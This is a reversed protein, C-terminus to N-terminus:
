VSDGALARDRDNADTSDDRLSPGSSQHGSKSPHDSRKRRISLFWWIGLLVLGVASILLGLGPVATSRVQFRTSALTQKGDPSLVLVELPSAGLSRAEVQIDISSIGSEVTILQGDEEVVIKDSLFKLLVQRTGPSNNEITLPIPASRAALTVSQNAPLSIVALEAGLQENLADIIEIRETATLGQSLATDIDDHYRAPPNSGDLYFTEYTGLRDQAQDVAETLESLDDAPRPLDPAESATLLPAARDLSLTAVAEHELADFALRLTAMDSESSSAANLVTPGSEGDALSLTALLRNTRVVADDEGTHGGSGGLLTSAPDAAVILVSQAGTDFRVSGGESISRLSRLDIATDVGLEAIAAAGDSTQSESLAVVSPDGVLGLENLAARRQAISRQYLGVQDVTVLSSPDLDPEAVVLVPRVGLASRVTATLAPDRQLEALQDESIILTADLAPHEALLEAAETLTAGDPDLLDFLLSTALPATEGDANNDGDSEPRALHILNTRLEALTETGTRLEVTVPYVGPERLRIREIDDFAEGQRVPMRIAITGQADVTYDDLSLTPMRNIPDTPAEELQQEDQVRGYITVVVDIPESAESDSEGSDSAEADTPAQEGDEDGSTDPQNEPQLSGLDIEMVFVGDPEVFASQSVLKLADEQSAASTDQRATAAAPSSTPAFVAITAALMIVVALVRCVVRAPRNM